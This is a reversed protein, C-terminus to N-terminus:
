TQKKRSWFLFITLAVLIVLILALFANEESIQVKKHRGDLMTEEFDEFREIEKDFEFGNAQQLKLNTLDLDAEDVKQAHQQLKHGENYDVLKEQATDHEYHDFVLYIDQRLGLM